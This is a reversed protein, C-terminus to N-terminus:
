LFLGYRRLLERRNRARESCSHCSCRLSPPEPQLPLLARDPSAQVHADFLSGFLSDAFNTPEPVHRVEMDGAIGARERVMAIADGVGGLKDVLGNEM